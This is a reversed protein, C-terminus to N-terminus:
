GAPRFIPTWQEYGVSQDIWEEFVWIPTNLAYKLLFAFVWKLVYTKTQTVGWGDWFRGLIAASFTVVQIGLDLKQWSKPSEMDKVQGKSTLIQAGLNSFIAIQQWAAIAVFVETVSRQSWLDPLM